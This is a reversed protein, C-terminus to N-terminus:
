FLCLCFTLTNNVGQGYQYQFSNDFGWFIPFFINKSVKEGQFTYKKLKLADMKDQKVNTNECNHEQHFESRSQGGSSTQLDLISTKLIFSFM